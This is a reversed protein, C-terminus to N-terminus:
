EDDLIPSDRHVTFLWSSDRIASALPRDKHDHKLLHTIASRALPLTEQKSIHSCSQMHSKSTVGAEKILDM